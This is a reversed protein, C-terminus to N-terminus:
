GKARVTLKSAKLSASSSGASVSFTGPEVTWKMDIDWFALADPALEFRVTRKEGPELTVREFAKLELVPRPVSSVEDRVYLQVVEDGARKGTNTVDVEVVATEGAAIESKVFRPASVDFTTYSLGHGFPFLPARAGEVYRNVDSSPHRNYFAPLEGVSRPISVTLKGGPNVRGFLVHAVATGGEQGLYWGQLLANAKEALRTVALPRGNLLVTVVPKGAALVAEVLADQDGYLGLSNRDGPATLQVAERTVQHNDGVVLVVLDARAAVKAAEAIRADNDAKPVPVIPGFAPRQGNADPMTLWVGDAHEVSVRPGAAAKVAALIGVAKDNEGSYGGFQPDAATPGIVALKLTAAPDLPLVGDNKLLIVAKEATTRALAISAPTNIAAVARPADVYPHEFLGAEFKLSLVRAVAADLRAVDVRGAKVLAPLRSYVQGDPLDADVGAALALIAAEDLDAAVHHHPVLNSIGSYDSFYAGRFGLRRRGTEDLLYKSAHAPVGLVENYSPMILAPDAKEIVTAFPVLFNERLTRESVDAPALNLGGQPTGHVFHKLTVFVKDAGLPRPGQQGRVSAVGMVATLYPDESFFEETRGYRPERMLDIVPSLAVTIGVARAERATVAFAQEVLEPDWTSALAPPVPFITAGRARFGHATEEHFLVPIGLRTQEVAFRQIANVLAVTDEVTRFPVTQARPTGFNDGPRAVQGIGHPIATRAKEASFAGNADLFRGKGFWTSCLQAAKEEVSMRSLLDKVREAMPAKADRYTEQAGAAYLGVGIVLSGVITATRLLVRSMQPGKLEPDNMPPGAPFVMQRACM